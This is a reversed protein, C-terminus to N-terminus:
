YKPGCFIQVRDIPPNEEIQHGSPDYGHDFNSWWWGRDDVTSGIPHPRHPRSHRGVPSMMMAVNARVYAHSFYLFILDVLYLLPSRKKMWVRALRSALYYYGPWFCILLVYMTQSINNIEFIKKENKVFLLAPPNARLTTTRKKHLIAV